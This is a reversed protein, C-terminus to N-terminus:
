EHRLALIPDVRSARRAPFYCAAAAALGLIAPAAAFVALDRPSIGFVLTAMFQGLAIAALLGLAIGGAALAAGQRLILGVVALPQAGLAIRIGIERVRQAVLCAMVGYVGIGALALALGAFTAMLLLSFRRLANANAVLSEMAALAYVPVSKDVEAVAQRVGAFIGEPVGEARFAVTMHDGLAIALVAPPVQTFPYYATPQANVEASQHYVDAVLGVVTYWPAGGIQPQIRKGIPNEKPWYRRALSQSVVAVAPAGASDADSLERGQLLPIELTRFYAPGVARFRTVAQGPAVPPAVGDIAIPMSPDIGSMPLDRALAAARIGPVARVKQLVQQYFEVLGLGAPRAPATVKFAYAHQANFGLQVQGLQWMTKLALGAGILLVLALATESVVLAARYRGLGGSSGPSSGKLPDTVNTQSAAMAPVSGFLLVSVACLLSTYGLVRLDLGLPAAGLTSTLQSALMGRVLGYALLVGLAGGFIALLASETLLQRVIRSRRAGLAVRISIERRRGSGRALLLNSANSCAILLVFAVAGFLLLLLPRVSGTLYDHVPQLLLGLGAEDSENEKRMRGAVADLRSQLQLQSTHQPLRAFATLWHVSSRVAADGAAVPLQLPTWLSEANSLVRFGPPMVGVITHAAGDVLMPKGIVAPDSAFRSNWFGAELMVVPAGGPRDEEATFTRGLLPAVGLLPFMEQSVSAGSVREALGNGALNFSRVTFAGAGALADQSKWFLYDRTTLVNAGGGQLRQSLILVRGPDAYPEAQLLATNIVSFMATNAGIGLAITVVALATFGPSKALTRFSFRVDQWFADMDTSGGAWHRSLCFRVVRSAQRAFEVSQVHWPSFQHRGNPL